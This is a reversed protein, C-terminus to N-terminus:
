PFPIPKRAEEIEKRMRRVLECDARYAAPIPSTKERDLLALASDIRSGIFTFDNVTIGHRLIAADNDEQSYLNPDGARLAKHKREKLESYAALYNRIDQEALPRSSIKSAAPETGGSGCSCMLLAVGVALSRLWRAAPPVSTHM